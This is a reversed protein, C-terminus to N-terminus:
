RGHACQFPFSTQSLEALLRECQERTLPDNFMIAGRCAKSNVLELLSRPCNRLGHLWAASDALQSASPANCTTFIEGEQIQALISKVCIQLEKEQLLKDCVVAPLSTVHMQVYDNFVGGNFAESPESSLELFSIGWNHFTKKVHADRIAKPSKLEAAILTDTAENQFCLPQLFREVRIREDAAHQDVLLLLRSTWPELDRNTEIDAVCAIFKRDIQNIVTVEKLEDRSLRLVGSSEHALTSRMSNLFPPNSFLNNAPGNQAFVQKSAMARSLWEPPSDSRPTEPFPQSKLTRRDPNSCAKAWEAPPIDSFRSSNGTRSDIIFVEGTKPDTWKLDRSEESTLAVFDTAADREAEFSTQFPLSLTRFADAEM